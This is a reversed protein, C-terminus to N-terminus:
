GKAKYPLLEMKVVEGAAITDVAIDAGAILRDIDDVYVKKVWVNSQNWYLKGDTTLYVIKGVPYAADPLSPLSTVVEDKKRKWLYVMEGDGAYRKGIRVAYLTM